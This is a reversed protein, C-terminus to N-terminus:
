NQPASLFFQRLQGSLAVLADAVSDTGQSLTRPRRSAELEGAPFCPADTSPVVSDHVFDVVLQPGNCNKVDAMTAFDVTSRREKRDVGDGGWRPPSNGM